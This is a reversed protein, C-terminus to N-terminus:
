NCLVVKCQERILAQELITNPEEGGKGDGGYASIRTSEVVTIVVEVARKPSGTEKLGGGNNIMGTGM